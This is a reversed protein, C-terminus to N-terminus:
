LIFQTLVIFRIFQKSFHYNSYGEFKDVKKLLDPQKDLNPSRVLVYDVVFDPPLENGTELDEAVGNEM